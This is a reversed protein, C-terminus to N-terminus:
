TIQFPLFHLSYSESMQERLMESEFLCKQRKLTCLYKCSRNQKKIPVGVTSMFNFLNSQIPVLYGTDWSLHIVEDEMLFLNGRKKEDGLKGVSMYFPIPSFNTYWELGM